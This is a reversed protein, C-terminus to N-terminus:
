FRRTHIEFRNQLFDAYFELLLPGGQAGPAESVGPTIMNTNLMRLFGELLSKPCIRLSILMFSWSFTWVQDVLAGPVEYVKPSINNKNLM